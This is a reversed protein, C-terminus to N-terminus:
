EKKARILSLVSGVASVAFLVAAVGFLATSVSIMGDKHWHLFFNLTWILTCLIYLGATFWKKKMMIGGKTVFEDHWVLLTFDVSTARFGRKLTESILPLLM